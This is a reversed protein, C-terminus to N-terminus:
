GRRAHRGARPEPAAPGTGPGLDAVLAALATTIPVSAVLGITGVASRLIEQALYESTLLDSIPESSAAILLLLPLSAGAYALVITNVASAVHARGVRTAARYLAWRSTAGPTMEAVTVAQTVTVDDLVGLAGIVIGALLLGRLDLGTRTVALSSSDDSGLGTLHMASSFVAGLVGTLVLSALTGAVAVSTHVNVGHTLYLAAFMIASAGVVAILLPPSGDLIAPVVFLLLLGFSVALGALSTLGRWRGFALIVAVAVAVLWMMPASRQRDVVTYARGGPVADPYYLLVVDDGVHLASTGPGQPLDVTQDAGAGPGETVRVTASGCRQQSAGAPCTQEAVATVTALARQGGGPDPEASVDGPWLLILAVLTALAAPVLVATVIRRTRRSAAPPPGHDHSM